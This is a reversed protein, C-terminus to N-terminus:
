SLSVEGKRFKDMLAKITDRREKNAAKQAEKKQEETEYKRVRQGPGERLEYGVIAAIGQRALSSPSVDKEKAIRELEFKLGLPIGLMFQTRQALEKETLVPKGARPRTATAESM